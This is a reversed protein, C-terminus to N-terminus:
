PARRKSRTRPRLALKGVSSRDRLAALAKPADALECATPQVPAMAGAGVLEFLERMVAGFM